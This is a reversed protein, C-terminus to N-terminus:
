RRLEHKVLPQCSMGDLSYAIPTSMSTLLDLSATKQVVPASSAASSAHTASSAVMGFSLPSNSDMDSDHSTEKPDKVMVDKKKNIKREKARRNQFWIKIQRETLDLSKALEAKRNITIYRSYHFEKELELRQRDSYVVRYKDKTRTKWKNPAEPPTPPYDQRRMWDYPERPMNPCPQPQCPKPCPPQVVGGPSHTSTIIGSQPSGPLSPPGTMPQETVVHIGTNPSHSLVSTVSSCPVRPNGSYGGLNHASPSQSSYSQSWDVCNSSTTGTRTTQPPSYNSASALPTWVPQSPQHSFSSYSNLSLSDPLQSTTGLSQPVQYQSYTFDQYQTQPPPQHPTYCFPALGFSSQPAGHYHSPLMTTPQEYQVSVM